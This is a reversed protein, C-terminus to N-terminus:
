YRKSAEKIWEINCNKYEEIIFGGQGDEHAISLGHEKCAKEIAEFFDIMKQPTEITTRLKEDYCEPKELEDM